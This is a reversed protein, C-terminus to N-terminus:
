APLRLATAGAHTNTRADIRAADFRDIQNCVYIHAQSSTQVPLWDCDPTAVHIVLDALEMASQAKEMGIREVAGVAGSSRIGATDILEVGLAPIYARILDRTTGAEETVIAREEGILNNFLSSKGANPAGILVARTGSTLQVGLRCEDLTADIDAIARCLQDRLRATTVEDIDEDSFDFTAEVLMRADSITAMLRDVRAGFHGTYSQHAARLQSDSSANILDAMGEAQTLNLKGNLFARRTFEGPKPM